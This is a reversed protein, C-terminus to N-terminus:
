LRLGDEQGESWNIWDLQEAVRAPSVSVKFARPSGASRYVRRAWSTPFGQGASHIFIRGPTSLALATRIDGASRIAPIFCKRMWSHDDFSFSAVSVCTNSVVPAFARALLAVVGVGRMALMNVKVPHTHIAAFAIATLIDQVQNAARTRNYTYHHDIAEDKLESTDTAEGTGCLDVSLVSQGSNVLAKVLPSMRNGRWGMRKGGSQLLLTVPATERLPLPSVLICPVMSGVNTQGIAFRELLNEGVTCRGFDVISVDREPYEVTLSHKLVPKMVRRFRKLEEVTNVRLSRLRNKKFAIQASVVDNKRMASSPRRRRAFVRLEDEVEVVLSQEHRSHSRRLLWREFFAYVSERSGKHYNHGDKFRCGSVHSEAKYLRYIKRIYPYEHELTHLTWDGSCSVLHLPRPAASAAIEVNNIEIRLHPQNECLCGGQYGASVMNVPASAKIRSDVATLLFTQTGGGSAGTCGIRHPDVDPLDQLFDIVRISNWLQIGLVGVGWLDERPGGFSRHAIQDSDLYGAMDYSFVVFGRRALEICRGPVSCVDTNELRGYKWHGHPTVIAPSKTATTNLPRYLNGCVYFGPTSEFFVKEITYDNKYVREFIRPRLATKKPLPLLGTCALIHDRIYRARAEWETKNSYPKLTQPTHLSKPDCARVELPLVGANNCLSTVDNNIQM